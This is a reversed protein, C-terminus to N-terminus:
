IIKSDPTLCAFDKVLKQFINAELELLANM